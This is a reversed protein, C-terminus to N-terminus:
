VRSKVIIPSRIAFRQTSLRNMTPAIPLAQMAPPISRRNGWDILEAAFAVRQRPDFDMGPPYPAIQTYALELLWHRRRGADQKGTQVQRTQVPSSSRIVPTRAARASVLADPGLHLVPSVKRCAWTALATESVPPDYCVVIKLVPDEASSLWDLPIPIQVRVKDDPSEIYGQWVLVASGATPQDLRRSDAKGCGLTREVLTQVQEHEVPPEATLTLFARATVAFPHSGPECVEQLKQM